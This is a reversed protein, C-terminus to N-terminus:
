IACVGNTEEYIMRQLSGNVPTYVGASILDPNEDRHRAYTALSDIGGTFLQASGRHGFRNSVINEVCIDGACSFDPYMAKMVDKIRGLSGMFTRDLEKVHLDAGIAWSVPAVNAIFPIYLISENVKGIDKDYKVFFTDSRFYKGIDTSFSLKFSLQGNKKDALKVWIDGKPKPPGEM